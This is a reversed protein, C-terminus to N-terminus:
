SKRLARLVRALVEERLRDEAILEESPIKLGRMQQLLKSVDENLRLSDLTLEQVAEEVAEWVRPEIIGQHAGDSSVTSIRLGEVWIRESGVHAATNRAEGLLWEEEGRLELNIATGGVLEIRVAFVEPDDPLGDAFREIREAVRDLVADRNSVGTMDVHLIQWEVLHTPRFRWSIDNGDAEVIYVGKKGVENCHRGQTNGPFIVPTGRATTQEERAHVHGLAWYDYGLADLDDLTCPAYREHGERGDLATHLLGINVLGERRHPYNRVLNNTVARTAYSQGHVVVGIHDFQVSDPRDHPLVRCLEKLDLWRTTMLNAADHNGRIMVVPINAERLKDLQRAFHLGTNLDPWEGDFVDGALLVLEVREEIALEVLREFARRTATSVDIQPAGEYPVLGSLQSGLHIDAGHLIRVM